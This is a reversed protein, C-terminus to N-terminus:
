IICRGRSKGFKSNGLQESDSYVQDMVENMMSRWTRFLWKESDTASPIEPEVTQVNGREKFLREAFELQSKM